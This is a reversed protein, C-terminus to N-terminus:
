ETVCNCTQIILRIKKRTLSVRVFQLVSENCMLLMSTCALSRIHSSESCVRCLAKTCKDIVVDFINNVKINLLLVIKYELWFHCTSNSFTSNFPLHPAPLYYVRWVILLLSIKWTQWSDDDRLYTNAVQLPKWFTTPEFKLKWLLVIVCIFIYITWEVVRMFVNNRTEKERQLQRRGTETTLDKTYGLPPCM